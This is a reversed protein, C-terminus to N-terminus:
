ANKSDELKPTQFEYALTRIRSLKDLLADMINVWESIETKTDERTTVIEQKVSEFNQWLSLRIDKLEEASVSVTFHSGLGQQYSDLYKM